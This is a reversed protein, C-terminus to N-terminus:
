GPAQPGLQIRYIKKPRGRLKEQKVYTVEAVGKEELQNLIRNASRITVGLHYALEEATIESRETKALVAVIKQLQLTSIGTTEHLLQLQPSVENRYDLCSEEGLPGIVQGNMQIVFTGHMTSASSQRSASQANTRAKYMTDGTGWGIDVTFPVSGHLFATLSCRTFGDTIARLDKASSILEFSNGAKQIIFPVKAEVTFELLAKHLLMLKLELDNIGPPEKDLGHISLHGVAIQNDALKLVEIETAIHEFQQVLSKQSPFLYLHPIGLEELQPVINGVRTISYDIAGRRWLSVHHELATDYFDERIEPLQKTQPFSAPGLVEKLGLYGNEDYIFDIFVRSFDLNPRKLSIQFLIKYFDDEHIHYAYTPVPFGGWQLELYRYSLETMIMGDVRHCHETYLAKTEELRSYTLLILESKGLEGQVAQLKPLSQEAIIVGLRIM